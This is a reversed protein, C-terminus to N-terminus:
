QSQMMQWIWEKISECLREIKDQDVSERCRNLPGFSVFYREPEKSGILRVSRIRIYDLWEPRENSTTHLPENIPENISKDPPDNMRRMTHLM